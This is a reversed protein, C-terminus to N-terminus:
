TKNIERTAKPILKPQKLNKKSESSQMAIVKGRLVAKATDWLNQKNSQNETHKKKEKKLKNKTIDHSMHFNM